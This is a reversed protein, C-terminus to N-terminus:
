RGMLIYRCQQVTESLSLFSELGGLGDFPLWRLEGIESNWATHGDPLAWKLCRGCPIGDQM